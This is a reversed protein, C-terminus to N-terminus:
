FLVLIKVVAIVAVAAIVAWFRWDAYLPKKIKAGCAPCSKGVADMQKGCSKCEITNNSM